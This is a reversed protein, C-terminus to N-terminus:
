PRLDTVEESPEGKDGQRFFGEVGMIGQEAKTEALTMYRTQINVTLSRSFSEKNPENIPVSFHRACLLHETSLRHRHNQSSTETWDQRKEM